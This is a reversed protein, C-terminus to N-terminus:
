LLDGSQSSLLELWEEECDDWKSRVLAWDHNSGVRSGIKSEAHEKLTVIKQVFSATLLQGTLADALADFTTELWDTMEKYDLSCILGQSINAFSEKWAPDIHLVDSWVTECKECALEGENDIYDFREGCCPSAVVLLVSEATSGWGSFNFNSKWTFYFPRNDQPEFEISYTAGNTTTATM